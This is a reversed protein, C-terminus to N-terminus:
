GDGLDALLHVLSGDRLVLEGAALTAEPDAQRAAM